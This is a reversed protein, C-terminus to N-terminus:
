LFEKREYIYLNKTHPKFLQWDVAMFKAQGIQKSGTHRDQVEQRQSQIYAVIDETRAIAFSEVEDTNKNMYIHLTLHPYQGKNKIARVRKEFETEAGSDRQARITFTNWIKERPADVWQVRCGVGYVTSLNKYTWELFYDIGCTKDLMTCIENEDGEVPLLRFESGNNTTRKLLDCLIPEAKKVAAMSRKMDAIVAEKKDV